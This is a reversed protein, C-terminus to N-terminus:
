SRSHQDAVLGSGNSGAYHASGNSGAHAASAILEMWTVALPQGNPGGVEHKEVFMGIHRGMLELARNAVNGAYVFEGTPNGKKDFVEVEQMARRYNKRLRKLVWEADIELKKSREAQAEAIAAAVKANSLLRSACAEAANGKATYGARHYAATANLDKLYEQVFRQQKANV